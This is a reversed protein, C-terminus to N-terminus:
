TPNRKLTRTKSIHNNRKIKLTNPNMQIQSLVNKQTKTGKFFENLHEMIKKSIIRDIEQEMPDKPVHAAQFRQMFKAIDQRFDAGTGM